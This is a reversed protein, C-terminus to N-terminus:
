DRSVELVRRAELRKQLLKYNEIRYNSMFTLAAERTAKILEFDGMSAIKLDDLGHQKLGYINGAGRNELDKEALINGEKTKAFFRLRSFVNPSEADSFVFCYSQKDGRGVRGRMQHLSALGFREAAEILIITANPIDIGVEVVPTTVLIDYGKNKFDTMIKEKEKAKIKGHLLGLRHKTFVDNKLREFESKAAKVSKMTEVETEEILPCVIFAQVGDKDVQQKIWEYCSNRKIKPVFYTKVPIRNIPM